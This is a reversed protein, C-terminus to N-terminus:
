TLQIFIMHQVHTIKSIKYTRHFIILTKAVTFLFELVNNNIKSINQAISNEGEKQIFFFGRVKSSYTPWSFQSHLHSSVPLSPHLSISFNNNIQIYFWFYYVHKPFFQFNRDKLWIFKIMIKWSLQDPFHCPTIKSSSILFQEFFQSKM